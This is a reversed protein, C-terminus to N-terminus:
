RWMTWFDYALLPTLYAYPIWFHGKDGWRAGYSNRAHFAQRGDDYGVVCVAHSDGIKGWLERPPLVLTNDKTLLHSWSVVAMVVPGGAALCAKMTALDYSDDPLRAASLSSYSGIRRSAADQYAAKNPGSVSQPWFGWARWDAVHGPEDRYFSERCIGAAAVGKLADRIACGGDQHTAPPTQLARANFYPFLRSLGTERYLYEVASGVAHGVCANSRRQDTVPGFGSRLDIVDPLSARTRPPVYVADRTDPTDRIHGTFPM